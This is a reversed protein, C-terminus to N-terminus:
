WTGFSNLVEQSASKGSWPSVTVDVKAATAQAFDCISVHKVTVNLRWPTFGGAATERRQIHMAVVADCELNQKSTKIANIVPIKKPTTGTGGCIFGMLSNRTDAELWYYGDHDQLDPVIDDIKLSTCLNDGSLIHRMGPGSYPFAYENVQNWLYHFLTQPFGITLKTLTAEQASVSPAQLILGAIPFVPLIAGPEKYKLSLPRISLSPDETSSRTQYCVLKWRPRDLNNSLYAASAIVIQSKDETLAYYENRCDIAIRISSM